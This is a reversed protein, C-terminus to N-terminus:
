EPVKYLQQKKLLHFDDCMRQYAEEYRQLVASEDTDQYASMFVDLVFDIAAITRQATYGREGMRAVDLVMDYLKKNADSPAVISYAVTFRQVASPLLRAAAIRQQVVEESELPQSLGIERFIAQKLIAQMTADTNM